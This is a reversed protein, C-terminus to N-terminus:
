NQCLVSVALWKATDLCPDKGFEGRSVPVACEAKGICLKSIIDTTDPDNCKPDIKFGSACDGTPTGWSAFTIKDITKGAACGGLWVTTPAHYVEPVKACKVAAPTPAPTPPPPPPSPPPTPFPPPSWNSSFHYSGSGVAMALYRQSNVLEVGIPKVGTVGGGTVPKGGEMVDAGKPDHTPIMVKAATNGPLTVNHVFQSPSASSWSSTATGHLAFRSGTASSIDGSDVGARVTLPYQTDTADVAIGAVGQLFWLGIANYCGHMKSTSSTVGGEAKWDEPWTTFGQELFYGYSPFTTQNTM